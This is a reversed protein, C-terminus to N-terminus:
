FDESVEVLSILTSLYIYRDEFSMMNFGNKNSEIGNLSNKELVDQVIELGLQYASINLFQEFINFKNNKSM